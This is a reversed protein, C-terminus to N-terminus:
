WWSDLVLTLVLNLEDVLRLYDDNCYDHQLYDAVVILPYNEVVFLLFYDYNLLIDFVYVDTMRM